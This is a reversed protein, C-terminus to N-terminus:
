TACGTFAGIPADLEIAPPLSLFPTLLFASGLGILEISEEMYEPGIIVVGVVGTCGEEWVAMRLSDPRCIFFGRTGSSPIRYEWFVVKGDPDPEIDTIKNM